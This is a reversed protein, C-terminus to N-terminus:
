RSRGGPEEGNSRWDNLAALYLRNFMDGSFPNQSTVLNGDRVAYGKGPLAADHKYGSDDLASGIMRNRARAGMVFREIYWEEVRSVSTVRRGEFPNPRFSARTLIAPAHCILGVPKGSDGFAAILAHLTEDDLLDVMVGQGGPVLIGQFDSVRRSADELALPSAMQPHTEIFAKARGLEELDEGWYKEDLSEPDLAPPKGGPTAITVDYGQATLAVYPAYFENLFYGTARTSGDALEQVPASSLVVLIKGAPTTPSSSTTETKASVCGTLHLLAVGCLLLTLTVFRLHLPHRLM